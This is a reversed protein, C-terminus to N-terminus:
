LTRISIKPIVVSSNNPLSKPKLTSTSTSSIIADKMTGGSYTNNDSKNYKRWIVNDKDTGTWSYSVAKKKNRKGAGTDMVMPVKGKWSGSTVEEGPVALVVHGSGGPNKTAGIVFEGDNALGQVESLDVETWDDASEIIDYIDNALQNDLQNDGTVDKFACRVGTSCM